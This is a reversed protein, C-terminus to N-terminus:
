RRASVSADEIILDYRYGAGFDRDLVLVGRVLVEDGVATTAQTTVTLDNTGEEGTGDQLHIWNKGMIGANYKVVKGAVVVQQGAFESRKGYLEAITHGGEAAAVSGAAVEPSAEAGSAAGVGAHAEAVAAEEGAKPLSGVFWISEFTRGLSPAHFDRMQQGGTFGVQDGVELPTIPAAVWVEGEVTALRAYTYGGSDMTELVAAVGEVLGSEAAPGSPGAAEAPATEGATEAGGGCAALLLLPLLLLFSRSAHSM